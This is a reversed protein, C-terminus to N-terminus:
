AGRASLWQLAFRAVERSNKLDLKDKIHSRHTEVTKPSLHLLKAIERVDKGKGILELIELERDSLREVADTEDESERHAFKTIVQAAMAPSLYPRGNFVERIAQIVNAMAEHKMVYGDAGARLSRLAYLSEDHMSLVLIPLKSFEARINKILEIGNAGPLSLDVIALDPALKRILDMAESANDAEGCVAFNSESQILEGLGKRFLPHDDVIVIAKAQSPKSKSNQDASRAHKMDATAM